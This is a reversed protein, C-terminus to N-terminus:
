TIKEIKAGIFGDVMMIEIYDGFHASKKNCLTNGHQDKIIAYGRKLTDFPNLANILSRRFALANTKTNFLSIIANNLAIKHSSLVNKIDVARRQPSNRELRNKFSELNAKQDLFYKHVLSHLIEKNKLLIDLLAQKDPVCLEAAASPTPARLDASLDSITTDVEHGVASVVPIDSQFIARAVIEENFASLDEFSGGGRGVIIVNVDSERNFYDIGAAISEAAGDGQVKAPYVTIHIGPFRRKAVQIIDHVAAGSASTVVGIHEPLLPLKKKYRSEFLGEEYLRKKTMEFKLFLEGLGTFEIRSVYIQLRGDKEYYSVTGTVMVKKGDEINEPIDQTEEFMVCPIAAGADKLTFFASGTSNIKFNTIEGRVNLEKLLADRYLKRSIYANLQTVTIILDDM